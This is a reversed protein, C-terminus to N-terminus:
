KAATAEIEVLFQPAALAAVQVTSRAVTQPNGASGFYLKFADNMGAFDMKGGLKPDGAVFVTLKIVDGMTFGKAEVLAKIKDLVSITQTRTDGYDAITPTTGPATAPTPAKSGASAIPAALQGSLYLMEAGPKVSVAQLILGPPTAAHRVVRPSSADSAQAHAAVPLALAILCAALAPITTM